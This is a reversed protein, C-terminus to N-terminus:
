FLVLGVRLSTPRPLLLDVNCKLLGVKRMPVGRIRGSVRVRQQGTSQMLYADCFFILRASWCRMRSSVAATSSAPATCTGAIGPSAVCGVVLAMIVGASATAHSLSAAAESPPSLWPSCSASQRPHRKDAHKRLSVSRLAVCYWFLRGRYGIKEFPQLLQREM